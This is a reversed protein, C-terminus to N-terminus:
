NNEDYEFVSNDLKNTNKINKDNIISDYYSNNHSSNNM